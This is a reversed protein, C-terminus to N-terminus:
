GLVVETPMHGKIPGFRRKTTKPSGRSIELPMKIAGLYPSTVRKPVSPRRTLMLAEATPELASKVRGRPWFFEYM